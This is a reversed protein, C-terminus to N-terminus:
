ENLVSGSIFMPEPCFTADWECVFDYSCNIFYIGNNLMDDSPIDSLNEVLYVCPIFALTHIGFTHICNSYICSCVLFM